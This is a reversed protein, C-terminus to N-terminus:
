GRAPHARECVATCGDRWYEASPWHHHFPVSHTGAEAAGVEPGAAHMTQPAVGAVCTVKRLTTAITTKPTVLVKRPTYQLSQPRAINRLRILAVSSVPQHPMRWKKMLRPTIKLLRPSRARRIRSPGGIRFGPAPKRSGPRGTKRRAPKMTLAATSRIPPVYTMM